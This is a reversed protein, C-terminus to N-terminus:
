SVDEGAESSDVVDLSYVRWHHGGDDAEATRYKGTIRWDFAMSAVVAGWRPLLVEPEGDCEVVWLEAARDFRQKSGNFVYVGGPSPAQRHWPPTTM